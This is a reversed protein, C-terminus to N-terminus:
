RRASAWGLDLLVGAVMVIAGSVILAVGLSFALWLGAGFALFGALILLTPLTTAFNRM